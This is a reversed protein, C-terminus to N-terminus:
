APAGWKYYIRSMWVSFDDEMTATFFLNQPTAFIVCIRVIFAAATWNVFATDTWYCVICRNKEDPPLKRRSRNIQRPPENAGGFVTLDSLAAMFVIMLARPGSMATASAPDAKIASVAGVECEFRVARILASAIL